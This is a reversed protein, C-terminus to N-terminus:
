CRQVLGGMASMNLTNLQQQLYAFTTTTPATTPTTKKNNNNNNKNRNHINQNKARPGLGGTHFVFITNLRQQLYALLFAYLYTNLYTLM